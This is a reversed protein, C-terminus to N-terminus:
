THYGGIITKRLNKYWRWQEVSGSYLLVTQSTQRTLLSLKKCKEYFNVVWRLKSTSLRCFARIKSVSVFFDGGLNKGATIQTLAFHQYCIRNYFSFDDLSVGHTADEKKDL